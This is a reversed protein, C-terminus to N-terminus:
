AHRLGSRFLPLGSWGGEGRHRRPHQWSFIHDEPHPMLGLVNGAENSLGAVGLWSGNPNAPYADTAELSLGYQLAILEQEVLKQGTTEDAIAIRGEGHAVPCYIPDNLEKLFVNDCAPNPRLYTWRCEFHGRENYTLTVQRDERLKGPLIGAKVLAQFGNCIGLVPRNAMVFARVQDWVRHGLDVSWLVGAGLDDGYSFGGPLLLMQYGRLRREGALLQNVHVIEPAGGAMQCALAAERDRNTGNAHLILVRPQRLLPVPASLPGAPQPPTALPERDPLHGRFAEELASITLNIIPQDGADIQFSAPRTEGLRSAPVGAAALRAKFAEEQAPSVEVVFRSLSEAFLAAEATLEGPLTDVNIHVGVNGALCMEALTVALGGEACDHVAALEGAQIAAHIASFLQKAGDQPAPVQGGNLENVLAYHSGGLETATQGVLYLASGAQKLDMTATRGVDPVQGLSSILITGPIAHKAGDAGTYENNLSDKGSIFPTGYAVAADHCGQACRVLAGLRDPLNPNGWCFNDLIAVRDPDAGVAVVNRVAEDVAAWAMNYPDLLGLEPCIGNGLAVGPGPAAGDSQTILPWLVAADGPGHNAVGVLPKVVTGGQVEHDYRRVVDEKSRVNPHALIALLSNALDHKPTGELQAPLAPKEWVATLHRQPIGDHLFEM